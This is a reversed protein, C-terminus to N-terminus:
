LTQGQECKRTKTSESYRRQIQRSRRAGACWMAVWQQLYNRYRNLIVRAMGDAVDTPEHLIVLKHRLPPLPVGIQLNMLAMKVEYQL